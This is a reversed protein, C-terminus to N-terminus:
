RKPAGDARPLAPDASYTHSEGIRGDSRHVVMDGGRKLLGGRAHAIAEQQTAFVRNVDATGGQRVAWTGGAGPVVHLSSPKSHRTIIAVRRERAPLGAQDFSALRTRAEATLVLGEVAAIKESSPRDLVFRGTASSRGSMKAM